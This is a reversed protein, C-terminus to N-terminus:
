WRQRAVFAALDEGVLGLRRTAEVDRRMDMPSTALSQYIEAIRDGAPAGFAQNLGAAFDALPVQVYTVTKGILAGLAAALEDGTYARPGGIKFTQGLVDPASALAVVHDALDKHSIWSVQATRPAPNAFVGDNQIAPLSWPALLNDFFITPEVVVSPTPGNRIANRAARLAEFIGFPSTENIDTAPNFIVRGVGADGAAKAVATAMALAVGPRHDQPLTFVVVDAGSFAQSLGEGTELNAAHIHPATSQRSTGRVIWEATSFAAAIAAQQQGGLGTIAVTNSM